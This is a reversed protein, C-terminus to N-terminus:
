LREISLRVAQQKSLDILSGALPKQTKIICEGYPMHQDRGSAYSIDLVIGQQQLFDKVLLVPQGVLDPFIVLSGQQGISVYLIMVPEDLTMGARPWQGIVEGTALQSPLDFQKVRINEKKLVDRACDISNGVLEPAQPRQQARAFVLFVPQHQKIKQGPRPIQSLVTGPAIDAEEKQALIRVNLQHGSLVVIADQISSGILLPTEVSQVPILFSVILYGCLFCLFPLFWFFRKM